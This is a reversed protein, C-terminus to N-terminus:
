QLRSLEDNEEEDKNKSVIIDSSREVSDVNEPKDESSLTIDLVNAVAGLDADDM